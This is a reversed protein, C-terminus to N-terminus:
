PVEEETAGVDEQNVDAYLIPLYLRSPKAPERGAEVFIRETSPARCLIAPSTLGLDPDDPVVSLGYTGAEPATWSVSLTEEGGPALAATTTLAALLESGEYFGIPMGAPVTGPGENVFTARLTYTLTMGETPEAMLSALGFMADTCTVDVAFPGVRSTNGALDQAEVTLLHRGPADGALDFTWDSGAERVDHMVVEGNPTEVRVSTQVSPGGDATAGRLVTATAGLVLEGSLQTAELGPAVNDVTVEFSRPEQTSNGLGDAGQITVTHTVFDSAALSGWSWGARTASGGTLRADRCEDDVCVTIGSVGSLDLAQGSVQLNGRQIVGVASSLTIEPSRADVRVTQPATWESIQGYRDTAQLRLTFETGDEPPVGGNAETADWQCTWYGSETEGVPCTVTRVGGAPNQVEMTIETVGSEDHAYGHIAGVGASALRDVLRFGLEQPAGRDVRHAAAFWELAPLAPGAAASYLQALALAAGADSLSLDAVGRFTVSRTEGAALDGLALRDDLLRLAGYGKLALWAGALPHLGENRVEISYTIEQGDRVPLHAPNMLDMVFSGPTDPAAAAAAVSVAAATEPDDTWYVGGAVGTVTAGPPDSTVEGAVQTDQGRSVAGKGNVCVGDGYADRQYYHLLPISIGQSALVNALGARANARSSNVPNAVPLTAWLRLGDDPRPEETAFAVLGLLGAADQGFYGFPLYLDTRGGNAGPEFRYEDSTLARVVSWADNWVVLTATGADQVWIVADAAIDPPLLVKSATEPVPFPSFTATSGAGPVVDLYVFLDGDSNWNAGTWALRAARGDWSAHLTQEGWRDSSSAGAARGDSGLLTCGSDLWAAYAEREAGRASDPPLAIFDPTLPTDVLVPGLSDSRRNGFADAVTLEVVILEAEGALYGDELPGAPAHTRSTVTTTMASSATWRTEYGAIGSGDQAADWSLRLELAADRLVAGAALAQSSASLIANVPAPAVVDVTLDAEVSHTAVAEAEHLVLPLFLRHEGAADSSVAGDGQSALGIGTTATATAHFTVGDPPPGAPLQWPYTWTVTYPATAAPDSLSAAGTVGDITVDVRAVRPLGTVHGTIGLTSGALHTGTLVTTAFVVAPPTQPVAVSAALLFGTAATTALISTCTSAPALGANTCNGASDCAAAEPTATSDSQCEARLAYLKPTAPSLRGALWPSQNYTRSSIACPSAFGGEVLNYDEAVTVYRYTAGSVLERCLTVTPSINDIDGSWLASTENVANVHGAKDTGRLDVRYTGELGAPTTPVSVNWAMSELGQDTTAPTAPQWGAHVLDAIERRNLGRRYIRLDDLGGQWKYQDNANKGVIVAASNAAPVTANSVSVKEVGDLFGKLTSGSRTFAYHYWHGVQWGGAPAPIEAAVAGNLYLRVRHNSANASDRNVLVAWGEGGSWSGKSVPAAFDRAGSAAGLADISFWQAVAFDGFGDAADIASLMVYDDIGDLHLAHNGVQGPMTKSLTDGTGTHLSGHRGWPSTDTVRDGDQALTSKFPMVLVPGTGFYYREIEEITVARGFIRVDDISGTFYNPVAADGRRGIYLPSDNFTKGTTKDPTEGNWEGDIYLTLMAGTKVFAVHHFRGDDLRMTSVIAPNNVLDWRAAVVKGADAGATQNLYRIVYPYGDVGSWKEIIDNDITRTSVQTAAPKIWAMVAFDHNAAFNITSTGPVQLYDDTGDFYFANGSQGPQGASPCPSGLCSKSDNSAGSVDRAALSGSADPTDEFPLHLVEGAPATENVSPSGGLLSTFAVEIRDVGSVPPRATCGRPLCTDSQVVFPITAPMPLDALWNPSLALTEDCVRITGAIGGTAGASALDIQCLSGQHIEGPWLEFSAPSIAGRAFEFLTYWSGSNGHQCTLTVGTLEAGTTATMQVEVPVPRDSTIGSINSISGGLLGGAIGSENMRVRPGQSDIVANRSLTTTHITMQEASLKPLRAVNDVAEAHVIYCGDPKADGFAYDISWTTGSITAVQVGDGLAEGEEDRLTVRVGDAPIGSGAVGTAIDPDRVTGALHVVWTKDRTASAGAQLLAGEALDLTLVPPTADVYVTTMASEATHDVADTARAELRYTNGGSPTFTACWAPEGQPDSCPTAASWAYEGAGKSVGLSVTKVYSSVDHAEIPVIIPENALYISDALGVRVTPPENDVVLTQSDRDEVWGKGYGYLERIRGPPLARAYIVVDDLRGAFSTVAYGAGINVPGSETVVISAATSAAESGNVYLRLYSGDYTGILHNWQNAIAPVTSRISAIQGASIRELVVIQNPDIALRYSLNLLPNKQWKVIIDGAGQMSGPPAADPKIWAGITWQPTNLRDQYPVVIGASRGNLDAALGIQGKVGEGVTPCAKACGADSGQANDAFTKSGAAEELRLHLVPAANFRELVQESRLATGYIWLDDVWGNFAEAPYADSGGAGIMLQDDTDSTAAVSGPVIGKIQGDVYFSVANAANMVAAVHYWRGSELAAGGSLVSSLLYDKKGYTTFILDSDNLGFGWGDFSRAAGTAVIRQRGSVTRPKIWAAISFNNAFRNTPGNPLVLVTPGAAPDFSVARNLRGGMGSVPCGKVGCTLQRLNVSADQFATAGPAEDLPLHLASAGDLTLEAVTEADLVQNFIMLEDVTGCFSHLASGSAPAQGVQFKTTPYPKTTGSTPAVDHIDGVKGDAYLGWKAESNGADFTVVVHTWQDFPVMFYTEAEQFSSGTGFGSGIAAMNSKSPSTALYLTPYNQYMAANSGLISQIAGEQGDFGCGKEPYVWAAISYAGGSLDLHTGSAVDLFSTGNFRGAGGQIGTVHAPCYPSTCTVATRFSSVDEWADQREFDMHFIPQAALAKVEAVSLSRSYVRADDILGAFFSPVNQLTGGFNSNGHWFDTSPTASGSAELRGDVYLKQGGISSGYTHVVHHWRQNSLPAATCITQTLVRACVKGASLEVVTRFQDLYRETFLPATPDVQNAKFWFAVAYETASGPAASYVYSTGDLQLANGFRGGSVITCGVGSKCAGDHAPQSGSTDQYSTAGPLEDFRLWLAAGGSVERWDTIHAGAVQTLSYAGSAAVPNITLSGTTTKSELADLVFTTPSPIRAPDLLPTAATGFLGEAQRLDLENKVTATYNLVDNPKVYGDSPSGTSETVTSELTLVNAVSPVNPNFGFTKEQVDTLNDGDADVSNPDSHVMTILPAGDSTRGYVFEWGAAEQADTLGDADSDQLRPNTGQRAEDADTLGDGDTDRRTPDSGWEQEKLDSIGDGDADWLSDNPDVYVSLGDGDADHLAPFRVGGEQDWALGWEGGVWMVARFEDLTAPFVDFILGQGIDYHNTARETSIGCGGYPFIGWCEQEPVAYAESFYLPTLSENIGARDLTFPAPAPVSDAYVLPLWGDTKEWATTMGGLKLGEHYDDQTSQWVYKFTSRRLQTESFQGKYIRPFIKHPVSALGITNSFSIGYSMTAGEVMGKAPDSLVLDLNNMKFRDDRMDPIITGTYIIYKIINGVLGTIGGCLWQGAKSAQQEVSLFANCILMVLADIVAILAKILTGIPGLATLVVFLLVAALTAGIAGAAASDMAMSGFPMDGLACQVAFAAWVIAGQLALGLGGLKSFNGKGMKQVFQGIAKATGVIASVAGQTAIALNIGLLVRAVMGITDTDKGLAFSLVLTTAAAVALGIGAVKARTGLKMLGIWPDKLWNLASRGFSKFLSAQEPAEGTLENVWQQRDVDFSVDPSKAAAYLSLMDQAIKVATNSIFTATKKSSNVVASSSSGGTRILSLQINETVGNLLAVYYARAAIMRGETTEADDDPFTTDFYTRLRDGLTSWYEEPPYSEWGVPQSDAGAAANYRFPAWSLGAVLQEGYAQPALNLTVLGGSATAAELGAARFREERAYLLTPTLSKDYDFQALIRPTDHAAQYGTYDVHAYRFDEVVLGDKPLNWRAVSDLPATSAVGARSSITTNGIQRGRSDSTFITLDRLGDGPQDCNGPAYVTAATECDQGAVFQEGLAGSLGWLPDEDYAAGPNPYAVAVDLGHDERVHLGTLYWSEDYTQVVQITDRTRHTACHLQLAEDYDQETDGPHAEHYDDWSDYPFSDGDCEDTLMNIAWLVRVQQPELWVSSAGPWYLMRAQFAAKGGGTDDAVVNLPVYAILAQGTAGTEKVTIGYPDLVSGDIMRDVYPGNVIDPVTTCAEKGEARVLLAHAGDALNVVRDSVVGNSVSLEYGLAGCEGEYLSVTPSGPPLTLVLRTQTADTPAPELTATTELATDGDGVTFTTTPTTLKFPVQSGTITVELLPVLRMDGYAGPADLPDQIDPNDSTAFTTPKGHQIQGDQDNAPWDLVNLAYALHDDTVPRLQFDVLVPWDPQLNQVMLHFPRDGNFADSAAPVGTRAAALSISEFESLDVADPVLDNDNDLDFIDPVLDGDIDCRADPAEGRTLPPCEVSDILGDRNTDAAAPNLHWRKGGYDFGAVEAADPVGDGDTDANMPNTGLKNLEQGDTLGDADSDADDAFTGYICEEYDSVGDGDPDEKAQPDCSSAPQTEQLAVLTLLGDGEQVAAGSLSGEEALPDQHPDWAPADLAVLAAAEAAQQEASQAPGRVAAREFFAAAQRNQIVPAIVMAFTVAIVLAIYIRRSRRCGLVLTVLGLAWVAPTARGIVEGAALGHVDLAAGAWALPNEIPSPPAAIEQPFGSFDTRIDAELWSGNRQEAFRLYIELRLPLGRADVWLEGEGTATRFEGPAELTVNLPLEGRGRLQQELEDRLHAAFAPGDIDFAYHTAGIETNPAAMRANKMGGLFALPDAGPAFSTSFDDVEQWSGGPQRVFAHGDEIRAESGNSETLVNGGGQWFQLALAEAPLDVSGQLHMEYHEPGRGANALLLAPYATQRLETAFDYVGIRRSLEWAQRVSAAPDAPEPGPKTREPASAQTDVVAMASDAGGTFCALIVGALAGTVLLLGCAAKFHIARSHRTM